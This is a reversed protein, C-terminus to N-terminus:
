CVWAIRHLSEFKAWVFVVAFELRNLPVLLIEIPIVLIEPPLM